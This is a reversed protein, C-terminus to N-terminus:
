GIIELSATLATYTAETVYYGSYDVGNIGRGTPIATKVYFLNKTADGGLHGVIPTPSISTIYEVNVLLRKADGCILLKKWDDTFKTDHYTLTILKM